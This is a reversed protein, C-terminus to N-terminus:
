GGSSGFMRDGQEAIIQKAKSISFAVAADRDAFVDARVFSYEKLGDPFQKAISGATLWGSSQRRPAPRILFGEHETATEVASETGAEKRGFLNRVLSVLGSPM